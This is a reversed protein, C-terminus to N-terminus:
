VSILERHGGTASFVARRRRLLIEGSGPIRVSAALSVTKRSVPTAPRIERLLVTEAFWRRRLARAITWRGRGVPLLRRVHRPFGL